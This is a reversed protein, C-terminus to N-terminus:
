WVEFRSCFVECGHVSKMESKDESGRVSKDDYITLTEVDGWAM